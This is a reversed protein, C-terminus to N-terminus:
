INKTVYIKPAKKMLLLNDTCNRLAILLANYLGVLSLKDFRSISIDTIVKM